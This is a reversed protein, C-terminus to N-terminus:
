HPFERGGIRGVNIMKTQFTANLLFHGFFLRVPLFPYLAECLYEYTPM